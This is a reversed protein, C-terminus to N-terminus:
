RNVLSSTGLRSAYFADINLGRGLRAGGLWRRYDYLLNRRFVDDGGANAPMLMPM